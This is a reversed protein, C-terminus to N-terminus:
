KNCYRALTTDWELPKLIREYETDGDIIAEKKQDYDTGRENTATSMEHELLEKAILTRNLNKEQRHENIYDLAEYSKVSMSYVFEGLTLGNVPSEAQVAPEKVYKASTISVLAM